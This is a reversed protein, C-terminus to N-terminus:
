SVLQSGLCLKIETGHTLSIVKPPLLMEVEIMVSISVRLQQFSNYLIPKLETSAKM